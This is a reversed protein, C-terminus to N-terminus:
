YESEERLKRMEEEIAFQRTFSPSQGSDVLLDDRINQNKKETNLVRTFSNSISATYYSFPNDSKAENFRLGMSSLQLLAQGKMEDLYTYGRWNARQSYKNVMLMFMKALKNTISGHTMSFKDSQSHSRLVEKVQFPKDSTSENIATVAYHKFPIFNLKVHEDAIAKVTKKRGPEEPIHEWTVVRFVLDEVNITDPDVKFQAAKPKKNTPAALWAEEYAELSLRAARTIKAAEITDNLFIEEFEEVIVDYTTYKKDQYQCYSIKSKHIEALM